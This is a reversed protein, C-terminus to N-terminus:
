KCSQTLNVRNFKERNQYERWCLLFHICASFVQYVTNYYYIPLVLTSDQVFLMVLCSDLNISIYPWAMEWPSIIAFNYYKLIKKLVVSGDEGLSQM